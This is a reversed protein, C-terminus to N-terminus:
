LVIEEPDGNLRLYFTEQYDTRGDATWEEKQESKLNLVIGVAGPTKM